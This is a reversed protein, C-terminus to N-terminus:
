QLQFNIAWVWPNSSWHASKHNISNWLYEYDERASLPPGPVMQSTVGHVGRCGEARADAESIDQLRQVRIDTVLLVLRSAWRPMSISSRWRLGGHTPHVLEGDARYVTTWEILRGNTCGSYPARKGRALRNAGVINLDGMEDHHPDVMQWTERVWLLDGPKGYPCLALLEAATLDQWVGSKRRSQYAISQVPARGRFTWDYGPTDSPKLATLGIPRRLQIKQGNIVPRVEDGSLVISKEKVM